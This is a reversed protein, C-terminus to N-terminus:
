YDVRNVVPETIQIDSPGPMLLDCGSAATVTVICALVAATLSRGKRM